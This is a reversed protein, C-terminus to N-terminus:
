VTPSLSQLISDARDLIHEKLPFKSKGDARLVATDILSGSYACPSLDAASYLGLGAYAFLLGAQARVAPQIPVDSM